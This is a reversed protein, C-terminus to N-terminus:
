SRHKGLLATADRKLAAALDTPDIETIQRVNTAKSGTCPTIMTSVRRYAVFSLGDIQEEVTQVEYTGAPQPGDMGSLVFPFAFEVSNITLREVM